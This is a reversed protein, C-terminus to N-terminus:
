PSSSRNTLLSTILNDLRRALVTHRHSDRWIQAGPQLSEINQPCTRLTYILQAIGDAMQAPRIGPLKSVYPGVDEFIALPTVAVVRAAALGYRVAGSASEETTQYPYVIIDAGSLLELSDTDSLFQDHLEIHKELNRRKITSRIQQALDASSQTPYRANVMRLKVDLGQQRLLELVEIIEPLGKQPLCFGYTALVIQRQGIPAFCRSGDPIDLIGHPFLTVNETLGLTKLRNLDHTSHVLLRDCRALAPVLNMLRKDRRNGPDATAHMMVIITLGADVEGNLFNAFSTFDFLGYNFQIVLVNLGRDRIALQLEIPNSPDESVWCRQVHREDPRVTSATNSALVTVRTSMHRVLHESYTAIGCMANWTTVWGIRPRPPLPRNRFRRVSEVLRSASQDWRWNSQLRNQGALIRARRLREPAQYVERMVSALHSTDPEAWISDTLGLHSQARAFKYDVMWAVSEDCFDTQGGWATTIVALGSLLGEALPLCFGEARSPNVLAHCQEYLNKLQRDCLDEEIIEVHPYDSRRGRAQALWTHVENHPNRITKIILTVDDESSFAIGYAQLLCDVGKRPFCSSVHLFRFSRGSVSIGPQSTLGRWHDTGLGTVAIPVTVGNDILIKRVHHSVVSIGDLHHNFQHVWSQPFESEEWAYAHLCRISRSMSHVRPPYLNRSTVHLKYPKRQQTRLHMENLDPNRLLFSGDPEFDGPGETSKLAVCHGLETLSRATERNVLALSYSSDFPGELRWNLTEPLNRWRMARFWLAETGDRLDLLAAQLRLCARM